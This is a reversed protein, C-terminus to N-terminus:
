PARAATKTAGRAAPRAPVPEPEPPGTRVKMEADFGVQVNERRVILEPNRVAVDVRYDGGEITSEFRVPLEFPPAAGPLRVRIGRAGLARLKAVASDPDLVLGCRLIKDQEAFKARVSDWSAPTLNVRLRVRDRALTPRALIRDPALELRLRGRVVHPVPDITGTLTEQAHFGRCVLWAAPNPDWDALITARGRGNEVTLPLSVELADPPVLKTTPSERAVLRGSLAHVGIDLVMMGAKLRKGLVKVHIPEELREYIKPQIDVAVGSRYRAALRDVVDEIVVAPLITVVRKDSTVIANWMSDTNALAAVQHALDALRKESALAASSRAPAPAGRVRPAGPPADWPGSPPGAPEGALSDPMLEISAVLRDPYATTALLRTRLPLTAPPLTFDGEVAPLDIAHALQVPLDLPPELTNWDAAKQRGFFGAVPNAMPLPGSRVVEVDTIELRLALQSRSYDIDRLGVVAQILLDAFVTTDSALRATGGALVRACGREIQFRASEVRVRYTSDEVWQEFPLSADLVHQVFDERLGVTIAGPPLFAGRAERAAYRELAEAELRARTAEFTPLAEPRRLFLWASLVGIAAAVLFALAIYIPRARPRPAPSRLETM